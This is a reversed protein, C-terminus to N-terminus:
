EQDTLRHRLAQRGSHLHAKVTGQSCQMDEAIESTTLQGVYHLVIAQRQRRPLHRLADWVEITESTLDPAIGRDPDHGARVLTRLEAALRRRMSTARNIMVRRVWAAPNDYNSIRQWNRHAAAFSEQALDEASARDPSVARAMAVIHNYERRYFHEFPENQNPQEHPIATRRAAETPPTM